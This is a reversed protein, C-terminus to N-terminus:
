VGSVRGSTVVPRHEFRLAYRVEDFVHDVQGDDVREPDKPDRRLSPITAFFAPCDEEVVFLGIDERPIQTAILRECILQYGTLRSGPGKDAKEFHLGPHTEANIRVPKLFEEHIDIETTASDWIASDAVCKRCDDLWKGPRLMDRRRWGRKIKYEQIMKAIDTISLNLGSNWEGPKNGYVEGVRFLDGPRTSKACDNPFVIDCGDSVAYFGASFPKSKGHDYSFFMRWTPPIAFRPLKITDAHDFFIWDFAGGSVVNWDGKIWARLIAPNGGSSTIINQMYQPDNRRLLVNDDFSFHIARRPAEPKADEGIADTIAPGAIGQPVGNLRWRHKIQNHNPGLPNATSRIKRPMGPVISRLSSFSKLYGVLDNFNCLEEWGIFAFQRGQIDDFDAESEFHRFELTEGSKWTFHHELKNYSCSPWIPRILEGALKILDRLQPQSERFVIGAYASGWGRGVGSLFDLLIAETKGCGRPGVGIVENEPASLYALQADSLAAASVPVLVAQENRVYPISKGSLSIRFEEARMTLGMTM